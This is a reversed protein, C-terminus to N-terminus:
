KREELKTIKTGPFVTQVTAAVAAILASDIEAVKEPFILMIIRMLFALLTLIVFVVLFAIGCIMYLETTEM